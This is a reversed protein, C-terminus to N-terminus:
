HLISSFIIEGLEEPQSSPVADDLPRGEAETADAFDLPSIQSTASITNNSEENLYNGSTPLDSLTTNSLELRREPSSSADSTEVVHQVVVGAKTVIYDVAARPGVHSFVVTLRRLLTDGEEHESSESYSQNNLKRRKTASATASVRRRTRHLFIRATLHNAWVLGLSAEKASGGPVDPVSNFFRSHENYLLQSSPGSDQTAQPLSRSFSDAVENVVIVALQYNIALSDLQTSLEYLEKSRAIISETSTKEDLHFLEAVADIVVARVQRSSPQRQCFAPLITKLVHMLVSMTPTEITHVNDLSCHNSRFSPRETIMDQLRTTPLSASTTLYCAAGSVGGSDRPLQVGLCIQLALQSKGAASSIGIPHSTLTSVHLVQREGVIEWVRGTCIGQGLAQDLQPEGTTFVTPSSSVLEPVPRPDSYLARCVIDVLGKVALPPLKCRSSIDKHSTFMLDAVTRINGKKLSARQASSLEPMDTLLRM